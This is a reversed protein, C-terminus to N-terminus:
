NAQVPNFVIRSLVLCSVVYMYYVEFQKKSVNIASLVIYVIQKSLTMDIVGYHCTKNLINYVVGICYRCENEKVGSSLYDFSVKRKAILAKFDGDDSASVSSLHFAEFKLYKIRNPVGEFEDM